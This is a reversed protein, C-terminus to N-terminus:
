AAIQTLQAWSCYGFNHNTFEVRVTIEGSLPVIGTFSALNATNAICQLSQAGATNGNVTYKTIRSGTTNRSGGIGLSYTRSNDLGTFKFVAIGVQTDFSDVNAFNVLVVDPVIGTNAGAARCASKSRPKAAKSRPGSRLEVEQVPGKM